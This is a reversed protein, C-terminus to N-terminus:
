RRLRLKPEPDLKTKLKEFAVNVADVFMRRQAVARRGGHTITVQIGPCGDSRNIRTAHWHHVTDLLAVAQNADIVGSWKPMTGKSKSAM